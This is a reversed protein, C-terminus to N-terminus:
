KSIKTKKKKNRNLKARLSSLHKKACDSCLHNTSSGPLWVTAADSSKGVVKRCIDCKTIIM